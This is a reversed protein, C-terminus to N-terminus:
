FTKKLLTKFFKDEKTEVEFFNKYLVIFLKEVM